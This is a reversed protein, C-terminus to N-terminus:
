RRLRSAAEVMRAAAQRRVTEWADTHQFTWPVRKPGPRNARFTALTDLLELADRQKADVRNRRDSLWGRVREAEEAAFAARSWQCLEAFSRDPYFRHKAHELLEQVTPESLAGRDAARRLTHRINVMADSLPRYDDAESAHVITVEDDDRLEGNRFAAFVQGVGVAGFDTLEAARLAGMSAAGFVHIGESMAWLLEKHWVAAAHEFYGDVVAIAFPRQEVLAYVDGQSVPPHFVIGAGAPRKSAPLSPGAFVHITENM